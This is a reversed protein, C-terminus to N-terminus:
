GIDALPDVQRSGAYKEWHLHPGTSFGTSGVRGVLDGKKVIDGVKVEIKSLHLFRHKEGEATMMEIYDGATPSGFKIFTIKGNEPAVVPTGTPAAIDVGPHPIKNGNPGTVMRGYKGSLRGKTPMISGASDTPQSPTIVTSSPRNSTTTKGPVNVQSPPIGARYADLAAKTFKGMIGDDKTPGLDYGKAILLKQLKKVKPDFVNEFLKFENFRM